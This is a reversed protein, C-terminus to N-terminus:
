ATSVVDAVVCALNDPAGVAHAHEVIRAVVADPDQERMSERLVTDDLVAHVGDTCLLYRDGLRAERLEVDPREATNLARVLLARQPHSAAEAATLRGEDVM